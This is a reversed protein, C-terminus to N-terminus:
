ATFIGCIPNRKILQRPEGCSVMRLDINLELDMQQKQLSYGM